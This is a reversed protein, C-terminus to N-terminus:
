QTSPIPWSGLRFKLDISILDVYSIIIVGLLYRFICVCLFFTIQVFFDEFHGCVYLLSLICFRLSLGLHLLKSSFPLM